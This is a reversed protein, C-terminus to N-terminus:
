LDTIFNGPDSHVNLGRKDGSENWMSDSTLAKLSFFGKLNERKKVKLMKGRLDVGAAVLFPCKPGHSSSVSLVTQQRKM